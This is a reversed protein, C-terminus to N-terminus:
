VSCLIKGSKKSRLLAKISSEEEMQQIISPDTIIECGNKSSNMPVFYPEEQDSDYNEFINLERPVDSLLASVQKPKKLM